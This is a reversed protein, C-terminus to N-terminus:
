LKALASIFRKSVGSKKMSFRGSNIASIAGVGGGDTGWISGASSTPVLSLLSYYEMDCAVFAENNGAQFQKTIEVITGRTTFNWGMAQCSSVFQAAQAQAKSM